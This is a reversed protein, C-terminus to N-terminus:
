VFWLFAFFILFWLEFRFVLCICNFGLYVLGFLAINNVENRLGPTSIYLTFWKVEPMFAVSWCVHQLASYVVYVTESIRKM